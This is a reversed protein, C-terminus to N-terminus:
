TIRGMEGDPSWWGFTQELDLNKRLVKHVNKQLARTALDGDPGQRSLVLDYIRTAIEGVRTAALATPDGDFPLPASWIAARDGKAPKPGRTDLFPLVSLREGARNWVQVCWSPPTRANAKWTYMLGVGAIEHISVVATGFLRPIRLEDETVVTPRLQMLSPALGFVSLVLLLIGAVVEATFRDIVGFIVMVVAFAACLQIVVFYSWSNKSAGRLRIPKENTAVPVYSHHSM